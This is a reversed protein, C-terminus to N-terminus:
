AGPPRPSTPQREVELLASQTLGAIDLTRAVRERVGRLTLRRGQNRLRIASQAILGIGKSDVFPCARMDIVVDGEADMVDDVAVRVRDLTALDFEGFIAVHMGEESPSVHVAFDTFPVPDPPM